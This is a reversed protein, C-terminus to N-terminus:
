SGLSDSSKKNTLVTSILVFVATLVLMYVISYVFGSGGNNINLHYFADCLVSSPNIRNVIPANMELILKIDGYMLGSMFGGGVIILMSLAELINEKLKLNGLMLGISSAMLTGIVTTLFILGINGGFNIGLVFILYALTLVSVVTQIFSKALFSSLMMVKQSGPSLEHRMGLISRSASIDPIIRSSGALCMMCSMAILNYFYAVYPDHNDGGLNKQLVFSGVNKGLISDTDENGSANSRLVMDCNQRYGILISSLISSYLNNKRISLEVHTVSHVTYYGSIDGDDLAKQAEELTMERCDTIATGDEYKLEEIMGDWISRTADETFAGTLDIGEPSEAEEDLMYVVGSDITEIKEQDYISGFAVYFLTGLVVPFVICWLISERNRLNIRINDKFLTGFM